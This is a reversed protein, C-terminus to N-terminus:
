EEHPLFNIHDSMGEFWVDEDIEELAGADNMVPILKDFDAPRYGESEDFPSLTRPFTTLSHDNIVVRMRDRKTDWEFSECRTEDSWRGALWPKGRALSLRNGYFLRVTVPVFPIQREKFVLELAGPGQILEFWEEFTQLFQPAAKGIVSRKVGRSKVGDGIGVAADSSDRLKAPSFYVGPQAVFLDPWPKEEWQGLGNGLDLQLPRTSFVADTAVMVVAEPNQGVAAIIQARTIATILGAEVVDHYPGSGSRQARKGYLSNLAIKLPYGKTSTGL